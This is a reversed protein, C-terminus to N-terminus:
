AAGRAKSHSLRVTHEELPLMTCFHGQRHFWLLRKWRWSLASVKRPGECLLLEFGLKVVFCGALQEHAMRSFSNRPVVDGRPFNTQFLKSYNIQNGFGIRPRVM